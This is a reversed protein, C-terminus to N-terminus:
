HTSSPESLAKSSTDTIIVDATNPPGVNVRPLTTSLVVQFMEELEVRDDVTIVIDLCQEKLM